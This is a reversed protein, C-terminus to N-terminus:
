APMLLCWAARQQAASRQAGVQMIRTLVEPDGLRVASYFAFPHFRPQPPYRGAGTMDRPM